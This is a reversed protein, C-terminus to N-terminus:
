LSLALAAEVGGIGRHLVEIRHGVFKGYRSNILSPIGSVASFM